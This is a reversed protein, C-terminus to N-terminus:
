RVKAEVFGACTIRPRLGPVYDACKILVRM